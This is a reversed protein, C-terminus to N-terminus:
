VKKRKLVEPKRQKKNNELTTEPKLVAWKHNGPNEKTSMNKYVTAVRGIYIIKEYKLVQVEVMEPKYSPVNHIFTKTSAVITDSVYIIGDYGRKGCGTITRLSM